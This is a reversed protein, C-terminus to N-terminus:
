DADSCLSGMGYPSYLGPPVQSSQNVDSTLLPLWFSTSTSSQTGQVTATATLMVAVYGAHDKPYIVNVAATGNTATVASGVDTSAVQGPWIVTNPLNYDDEMIGNNDPDETICGYVGDLIYGFDDAIYTAPPPPTNLGTDSVVEWDGQGAPAPNSGGCTGGATGNWLECGKIYGISDVAFTVTIGNVPNGASDVAQVTFPMKYQTSSGNSLTIASITNGTGLSLFVTEGAVTLSTSGSVSTGPISAGIVVGDAGSTTGTASYVTSAQGQYNTVASAASLTGGTPDATISFDVTQGEVLNNNADRVTATIQSQAQTQITAPSAQVNLPNAPTTAIFNIVLQASVGGNGTASIVAPGATTSSITVSALGSTTTASNASLTGRTAAFTVATGNAVPQGSNDWKVTITAPTGIDVNANAAPTSFTFDDGSVSLSQTATLGAASATITDTGSNVATVTFNGEGSANTVFTSPNLTNDKASTITATQGSIGNGASDQLTASFTGTNNLVLSTPGSLTLKTGVVAVQVTSKTTGATATVTIVRDSPDGASSLTATATGNAGTTGTTVTLAGSSADFTVPIGSMVNNNADLLLANITATQSGDSPLQPLSTTLTMSNVTPGPPATGTPTSSGTLPGNGTGCAGLALAAAAAMVMSRFKSM